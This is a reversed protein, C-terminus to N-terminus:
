FPPLANVQEVTLGTAAAVQEPPMNLEYRLKRGIEVPDNTAAPPAGQTAPAAVQQVPPAGAAVTPNVPQAVQQQPMVNQAIQASQAAGAMITGQSPPQYQAEFVKVPNFGPTSSPKTGTFTMKLWGGPALSKEGAALVADRIAGQRASSQQIFLARKGDDDDDDRLQTQLTVVVQLMPKGDPYTKLAGTGPVTQQMPDSVNDVYGEVSTGVPKDQFSGDPQAIAWSWSRSKEGGMLLDSGTNDTM